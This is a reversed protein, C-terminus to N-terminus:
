HHHECLIQDQDVCSCEREEVQECEGAKDKEPLSYIESEKERKRESIYFESQFFFTPFTDPKFM